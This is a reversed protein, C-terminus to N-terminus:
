GKESLGQTLFDLDFEKLSTTKVNKTARDLTMYFCGDISSISEKSYFGSTIIDGNNGIAYTIDTIFKDNLKIEYETKNNGKDMYCVLHYRFNQKGSVIEKVKGNYLKGMVYLNGDNDCNFNVVSFFKDTYPLEFEKTWLVNLDKDCIIAGFKENEKKEYPLNYGIMLKSEDKSSYITFNGANKRSLIEIEKLNVMKGIPLMTQMDIKRVALVNKKTKKDVYSQFLLLQDNFFYMDEFYLRLKTQEDKEEIKVTAVTNMKKDLKVLYQDNKEVSRIYYGNDDYGITQTITGRKSGELEPGWKM